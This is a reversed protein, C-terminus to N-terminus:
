VMKQACVGVRTCVEWRSPQWATYDKDFELDCQKEFSYFVGPYKYIKIEMPKKGM